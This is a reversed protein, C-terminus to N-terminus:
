LSKRLKAAAAVMARSVMRSVRRRFLNHKTGDLPLGEELERQLRDLDAQRYKLRRHTLAAFKREAKGYDIM